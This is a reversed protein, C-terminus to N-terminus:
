ATKSNETRQMLRFQGGFERVSGHDHAVTTQSRLHRASPESVDSAAAQGALFSLQETDLKVSIRRCEWAPTTTQAPDSGAGRQSCGGSVPSDVSM